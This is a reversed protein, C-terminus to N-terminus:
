KNHVLSYAEIYDRDVLLFDNIEDEIFAREKIKSQYPKLFNEIKRDYDERECTTISEHLIKDQREGCFICVYPEIVQITLLCDDPQYKKVTYWDFDKYKHECKKPPLVNAKAEKKKKFPWM